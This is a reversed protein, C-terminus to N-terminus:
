KCNQIYVEILAEPTTYTKNKIADVVAPCESFYDSLKDGNMEVSIAHDKSKIYYVFDFKAPDENAFRKYLGVKENEKTALLYSAGSGLGKAKVKKSIFKQNDIVFETVSNAFISVFEQGMEKFKHCDKDTCKFYIYNYLIRGNFTKDKLIVYSPYYILGNITNNNKDVVYGNYAHKKYFENQLAAQEKQKAEDEKSKNVAIANKENRIQYGLNYGSTLLAKVVNIQYNKLRTVNESPSTTLSYGGPATIKQNKYTTLSFSPSMLNTFGKLKAIYNNDLDYIDFEIDSGQDKIMNITGMLTPTGQLSWFIQKSDKVDVQMDDIRQRIALAQQDASQMALQMESYKKNLDEREISFFEQIKTLNFGEKPDILGFNDQLENVIIICPNFSLRTLGQPITTTKGDSKQILYSWSIDKTMDKSPLSKRQLRFLETSDLKSFVWFVGQKTKEKYALGLPKDDAMLVGKKEKIKQANVSFSNLVFFMILIQLAFKSISFEKTLM